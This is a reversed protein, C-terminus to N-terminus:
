VPDWTFIDGSRLPPLFSSKLAPFARDIVSEPTWGESAHAARVPRKKSFLFIENNRVGFVEGNVPLTRAADPLLAITMPAVREPVLKKLGELRAKQEPTDDPITGVMRTWAFPAICNSIVGVKQMDLSIATSLGVVGLKAAMYNAQGFNGILTATSTMHVYAGSGQAKMQPAAASAVYFPGRLNVDIVADFDSPDMKHFIVDRLIGANNVVGDIRGFNDMACAIIRLAGEYTAVSDTNAVARGGTGIIEKVVEDAPSEAPSDDAPSVGPDNVVVAAGARAVELAIGRGVGRGGGTVVVVKDELLRAM